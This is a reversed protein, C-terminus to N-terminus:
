SYKATAIRTSLHTALYGYSNTNGVRGVNCDEYVLPNGTVTWNIM